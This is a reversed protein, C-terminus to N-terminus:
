SGPIVGIVGGDAPSDPSIASKGGRIALGQELWGGEFGIYRESATWDSIYREFEKGAIELDVLM